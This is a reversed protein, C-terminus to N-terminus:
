YPKGNYVMWKPTGSIKPFVWNLEKDMEFACPWAYQQGLHQYNMATRLWMFALVQIKAGRIVDQVFMDWKSFHYPTIIIAHKM